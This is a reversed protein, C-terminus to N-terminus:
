LYRPYLRIRSYIRVIQWLSLRVQRQDRNPRTPHRLWREPGALGKGAITGQHTKPDQSPPYSPSPGSGRCSAHVQHAAAGAPIPAPHAVAAVAAPIPVPRAAVAVAAARVRLGPHAEAM